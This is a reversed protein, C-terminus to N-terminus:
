AGQPLAGPGVEQEPLDPSEASEGRDHAPVQEDAPQDTLYDDYDESLPVTGPTAVAYASAQEDGLTPADRRMMRYFTFLAIAGLTAAMYLFYGGGGLLKMLWSASPAGLASGVSYSLVITAAAPVLSSVPLRDNTYALLVAYLPFIAVGTVAASALLLEPSLPGALSLMFFFGTAASGGLTIVGIMLRRDFRDSLWGVPYQAVLGAVMATTMLYAVWDGSLNMQEGFSPSLGMFAGQCASLLVLGVLGLPTERYLRRVSFRKEGGNPDQADSVPASARTLTVPILAFSVMISSIVFLDFGRPDGLQALMPGLAYGGFAATGYVSLLRGRLENSARANLWSEVVMYLGAFSFGTVLRLVGWAIPDPLLPHMLAVGSVLSGYAAFSRIHGASRTIAPCIQSGVGFGIFYCASVFGMTQVSIGELNARLGLAVFQLGNGALLFSFGLILAAVSLLVSRMPTPETM